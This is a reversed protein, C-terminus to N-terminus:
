KKIHRLPKITEDKTVGYVNISVDSHDEFIDIKNLTVPFKICDFNLGHDIADEKTRAKIYKSM